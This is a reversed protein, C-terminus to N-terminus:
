LQLSRWHDYEVRAGPELICVASTPREARGSTEVSVLGYRAKERWEASLHWVFIHVNSCQEVM